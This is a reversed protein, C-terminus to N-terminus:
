KLKYTEDRLFRGLSAIDNFEAIKEPTIPNGVTLKITKNKKNHFEHCLRLTRVQWGFIELGYFLPSNHGDVHIPIVPVNARQIIKLVSVQWERDKICFKGNEYRVFSIAGAPFFGLPKGSAIHQLSEKIGNLTTSNTKHPNVNIFNDSLTDVLGLFSNVLVKYNNVRSAVTEIVSLGDLHGLPHNSVTIFPQNAYEHFIHENKVIRKVDLKDLVDTCFDSGRLHKSADYIRNAYKIGAIKTGIKIWLNGWRSRFIPHIARIDDPSVLIDKM